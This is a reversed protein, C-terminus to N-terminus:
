GEAPPAARISDLPLRVTFTSGQGETSEVAITGGHQTVIQHASALGIGAGKMSAEVNSARRFSEFIRPQDAKPIGIGFDRVTLLAQGIGNELGVQVEIVSGPPSYKVANSLLNAIVRELRSRDWRGRLQPTAAHVEIMRHTMDRQFEDVVQRVLAVLDLQTLELGVKQGAHLCAVDLLEHILATMRVAARSIRALGRANNADPHSERLLRANWEIVSLPNKLDHSVVSIFRDRMQVAEETERYLRANDLAVAARWALEEVLALDSPVFPQTAGTTLLTLMGLLRGRTRLPVLMISRVDLPALLPIREPYALVSSLEGDSVKVALHPKGSRLVQAFPHNGDAAAEPAACLTRALADLSPDAHAVAACRISGTNTVLDLVCVDALAPTALRPVLALTSEYDLSSALVATADALFAMRKQAMEAEARAHREADYLRALELAADMRKIFQGIQSGIAEMLGLLQADPQRVRASFFELVGLTEDSLRIPFGVAARLGERQAVRARPFNDDATVDVIWAPKGDAWVRGPLGVGHAFTLERTTREFEPVKVSPLHWTSNCRLVAAGRDVTWSAAYVWGMSRCLGELIRPMAQDLATAQALVSATLEHAPGRDLIRRRRPV